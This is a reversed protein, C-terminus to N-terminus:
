KFISSFFERFVNYSGTQPITKTTPTKAEVPKPKEETVKITQEASEPDEHKVVLQTKEEDKYVYEFYVIDHNVLESTDLDQEIDWVGEGGESEQKSDTERIVKEAQKDYAKTVVYYEGKGLNQYSLKDRAKADKSPLAEKTGDIYTAETQIQPYKVEVTQAEDDPDKHEAILNGNADILEEFATLKAITEPDLKTADFEFWVEVSGEESEIIFTTEATIEKGDILVPTGSATLVGKATVEKGIKGKMGTYSITDKVRVIGDAFVVKGGTENTLTTGIGPTEYEIEITQGLDEPDKHEFVVKGDVDLVTEFATLSTITEPDLKSADFEFWVEVSGAKSEPTFTATGTIEEGDILVPIGNSTLVGHATLEDGIHQSMKDYSITDKLRVISDPYNVDVIIKKEGSETELTTSGEPTEYEIEITQGLDEPDKHEAIVKGDADVITEFATLKSITEADLKLGDFEFWVEVSGKERTPTFNATGTIEQGDILVPKGDATLLGNATLKQGIYRGMKEYTITDKVKLTGDVLVKKDGSESTLSTGIEPKEVKITITQGVDDPDKHEAVINGDADIITEFATLKTITDVDLRAADFEFWVETTGSEKKPTFKATGTIEQGDILVPKGDATLVGNATLEKGIFRKMKDYKITDRLKVVGDAYTFKNDTDTTLTTGVEPIQVAEDYFFLKSLSVVNSGDHIKDEDIKVVKLPEKQGKETITFVYQKKASDYSSNILLPQIKEYGEPENIESVEYDGYPINEFNWSGDYGNPDTHTESIQKEGKTEGTPALELQIGNFGSQASGNSSTVYKFGGLNFKIVKEKSTVNSVVVKTNQDKYKLDFSHKQKDIQYGQPAKTEQWYYGDALALHAVGAKQDNDDIRIKIADNDTKVKTGNTIVPRVKDTWKVPTGDKYFLAYEAGKFTARGQTESGKEEDEKTLVSSGTTEQNTGDINVVVVPTKQDKYEVKVTVPKFTNAFGIGATKESIYYTGLEVNAKANGQDDTTMSGVLKGNADKERIEFVHGAFTYNNNLLEKGFEVGSKKLIIQGTAKKNRKTLTLTENAKVTGTITDSGGLASALVYPKPVSIETAEVKTGDPVEIEETFGNAGTTYNKTIGDAVVKFIVGAVAAGTDDDLKQLRFKGNNIIKVNVTTKTFSPDLAGATAVTQSGQCTWILAQEALPVRKSFRIVGDTNTNSNSKITMKNGNITVTAGTTNATIDMSNISNNTDTLTTSEGVKLTVTENNFSAPRYWEQIKSEIEAQFAQFGALSGIGTGDSNVEEVDWGIRSWSLLQTYGSRLDNSDDKAGFNLVDNVNRYTQNSIDMPQPLYNSGEIFLTNPDMCYAYRDGAWHHSITPYRSTTGFGRLVYSMNFARKRGIERTQRKFKIPINVSEGADNKMSIEAGFPHYEGFIALGLEEIEANTLGETSYKSPSLRNALAKIKNQDVAAREEATAADVKPSDNAKATESNTGKTSDFSPSPKPDNTKSTDEENEEASKEVQETKESVLSSQNSADMTEAISVVSPTITSFLISFLMLLQFIKRRFISKKKM